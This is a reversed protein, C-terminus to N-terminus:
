MRLLKSGKILCSPSFYKRWLCIIQSKRLAPHIKKSFVMWWLRTNAPALWPSLGTADWLQLSRLSWWMKWILFSLNLFSLSSVEWPDLPLHCRQLWLGPKRVRFNTNEWNIRLSLLSVREHLFHRSNQIIMLLSILFHFILITFNPLTTSNGKIPM